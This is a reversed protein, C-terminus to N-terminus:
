NQLMKIVDDPNINKQRLYHILRREEFTLSIEFSLINALSFLSEIDIKDLERKKAKEIIGSITSMELKQFETFSYSIGFAPIELSKILRKFPDFSEINKDFFMVCYTLNAFRVFCIRVDTLFLYDCQRALLIFDFLTQYNKVTFYLIQHSKLFIRDKEDLWAPNIFLMDALKKIKEDSLTARNNLFQSLAGQTIGLQKAVHTQKYGLLSFMTKIAVHLSKRM